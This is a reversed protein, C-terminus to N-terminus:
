RTGTVSRLVLPSGSIGSRDKGELEFGGAMPRYLYDQGWPDRLDSSRILGGLVLYNLDKPFGRHQVFYVQLAYRIREMRTLTVQRILFMEHPDSGSAIALGNLPNRAATALSAAVLAGLSWRWVAPMGVRRVEQGAAVKVATGKELVPGEGSPIKEVLQRSSLEYLVRCTDFESLPSSDVLDQITRMGDVTQMVTKEEASLVPGSKAGTSSAARETPRIKRFVGSFSGIRKEIMPWEDLIRAGEMLISEASLPSVNERDYDLKQDQSFHYDGDRWRFLRYITQSVQIRLAERLADQSIFKQGVLVTGLRKLTQKQIKLAEQLQGEGIQRSKVLVVGLRDELRKPVSDATVVNGDLFSVTVVEQGNRLTLVGTKKQLGILQFIDALTFDKLTGQLAM